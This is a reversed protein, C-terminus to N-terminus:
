SRNANWCSVLHGKQIELLIPEEKCADTAYGCREYFRCGQPPNILSPVRGDIAKFRTVDVDLRPISGLLGQTYPHMCHTFLTTVDALEVIKGAYMVAVVNCMEAIVGLDHTILLLSAEFKEVLGRMLDLVQAQTTVDLSSTPEDAILLAPHCSLAMAIMVRQRMGTSLEHPYSQMAKGVDPIGVEKLIDAVKAREEDGKANQHLRIAEGIQEEVTLVPNLAATPDQFIMAIKNGRIRRIEEDSKELLDESHLLIKGEVSTNPGEVLRIISLATTSKGCGSEGALGFVQGREIDFSIEDVARVLGRDSKFRVSLDRISLM